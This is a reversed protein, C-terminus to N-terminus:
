FGKKIYERSDLIVAEIKYRRVNFGANRLQDVQIITRAYIDDYDTDHASMFQDLDSLRLEGGKKMYLSALKFGNESCIENLDNFSFSPDITVHSEYYIPTM